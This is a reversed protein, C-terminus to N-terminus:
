GNLTETMAAGLIRLVEPTEAQEVREIEHRGAMPGPKAWQRFIRGGGAPAFALPGRHGRRRKATMFDKHVTGLERFRAVFAKKGEPGVTGLAGDPLFLLRARISTSLHGYRGPGPRIGAYVTQLATFVHAVARTMGENVALAVVARGPTFLPGTATTSLIM